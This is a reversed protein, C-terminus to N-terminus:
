SMGKLVTEVKEMMEDTIDLHTVFRIEQPALAMAFIDNDRLKKLFDSAPMEPKLSFFVLNTQVPVVTHVYPLSLLITELQKAKRHDESLRELNNDLAYICAAALYGAQRM